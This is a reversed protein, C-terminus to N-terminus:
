MKNRLGTKWNQKADAVFLDIVNNIRIKEGGTRGIQNVPINYKDQGPFRGRGEQIATEQYFNAAQTALKDLESISKQMKTSEGIKSLKPLATMALIAMLGVTVAFEMLSNGRSDKLKQIFNTKM